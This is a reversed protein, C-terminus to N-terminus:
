LAAEADNRAANSRAILRLLLQRSTGSDSQAYLTARRLTEMHVLASPDSDLISVTDSILNKTDYSESGSLNWNHSIWPLSKANGIDITHCILPPGAIASPTFLFPTLVLTAAFRGIGFLKCKM